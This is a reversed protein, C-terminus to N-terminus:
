CPMPNLWPLTKKVSNRMILLSKKFQMSFHNIKRSHIKLNEVDQKIVQRILSPRYKNDILDNAKQMSVMDDSISNSLKVSSPPVQACTAILFVFVTAIIQRHKM